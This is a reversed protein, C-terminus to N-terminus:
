RRDRMASIFIALPFPVGCRVRGRRHYRRRHCSLSCAPLRRVFRVDGLVVPRVSGAERTSCRPPYAPRHSPSCSLRSSLRRIPLRCTPLRYGLRLPSPAFRPLVIAGRVTLLCVLCAGNGTDFIAPRSASVPMSAAGTSSSPCSALLWSMPRILSRFRPLCSLASPVPVDISMITDIIPHSPPSAIVVLVVVPLRRRAPRIACSSTILRMDDPISYLIVRYGLCSSSVCSM